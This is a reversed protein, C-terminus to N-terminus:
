AESRSDAARIGCTRQYQEVTHQVYYTTLSLNTYTYTYRLRTIVVYRQGLQKIYAHLTDRLIDLAGTVRGLLSYLLKLDSIKDNKIMSILGSGDMDILTKAHASILEYEVVQRLKNETCQNLYQRARAQEESLRADARSIYESCTCTSLYQQSLQHYYISTSELFPKEFEEEYVDINDVASDTLM